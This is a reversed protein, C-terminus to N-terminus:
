YKQIIDNTWIEFKGRMSAGMIFVLLSLFTQGIYDPIKAKQSFMDYGHKGEKSAHQSVDTEKLEFSTM